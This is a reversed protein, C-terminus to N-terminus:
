YPRTPESIHILSLYCDTGIICSGACDYGAEAYSCGTDVTASADYDCASSDTCGYVPEESCDSPSCVSTGDWCSHSAGPGDCDGCEDVAAAGGCTGACDTGATCVGDCDYGPDPYTCGTDVTVGGDYDCAAPDSCRDRICM